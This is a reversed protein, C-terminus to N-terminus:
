HEPSYIVSLHNEKLIASTKKSLKNLYVASFISLVSIIVFFFIIGIIFKTRISPKM